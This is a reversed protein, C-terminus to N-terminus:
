VISKESVTAKLGRLEGTIHEFDEYKLTLLFSRVGCEPKECIVEQRSFEIRPKM